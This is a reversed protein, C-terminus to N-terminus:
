LHAGKAYHYDLTITGEGILNTRKRIDVDAEISPNRDFKEVIKRVPHEGTGGTNISFGKLRRINQWRLSILWLTLFQVFVARGLRPLRDHRQTSDPPQRM